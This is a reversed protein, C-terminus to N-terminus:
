AGDLLGAAALDCAYREVDPRFQLGPLRALDNVIMLVGQVVITAEAEDRQPNLRRYLNVWENVYDRQSKSIAVRDEIPLNRAETILLDIITPHAFAFHSYSAILERLATAEDSARYLIRELSLQLYGDGRKLAISLLDIKSAFHHYVSASALGAAAAIDNMSVSAFTSDAFLDLAARLILERRSSRGLPAAAVGASSTTLRARKTAHASVLRLALQSVLEELHPRAVDIQHVWPSLLAGLVAVSLYHSEVETTGPVAAAVRRGLEIRVAAFVADVQRRAPMPLHRAERQYLVGLSRLDMASAALEHVAQSLDEADSRTATLLSDGARELVAELLSEKGRFHRYLASPGVAVEVAVDAVNVNEYGCAAFLETAADLILERRNSPRTGRAPRVTSM